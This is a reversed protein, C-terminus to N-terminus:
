SFLQKANFISYYRQYSKVDMEFDASKEIM